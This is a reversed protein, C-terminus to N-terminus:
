QLNKVICSAGKQYYKGGKNIFLAKKDFDYFGEEVIKPIRILELPSESLKNLDELSLGIVFEFVTVDSTIKPPSDKITKLKLIDGNKTKLFVETGSKLTQTIKGVYNFNQTLTAKGNKVEYFFEFYGLENKGQLIEKCDFVVKKENTIPDTQEVCKQAFSTEFFISVFAILIINKM